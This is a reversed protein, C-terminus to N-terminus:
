SPSLGWPGLCHLLIAQYLPLLWTWMEADGTCLQWRQSDPSVSSLSPPPQGGKELLEYECKMNRYEKKTIHIVYKLFINEQLNDQGNRLNHPATIQSFTQFCFVTIVYLGQLIKFFYIKLHSRYCLSMITKCSPRLPNKKLAYNICIWKIESIRISQCSKCLKLIRM